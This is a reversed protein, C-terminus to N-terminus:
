KLLFPFAFPDKPPCCVLREEGRGSKPNLPFLACLCISLRIDAKSKWGIPSALLQLGLTPLCLSEGPWPYLCTVPPWLCQPFGIGPHHRASWGKGRNWRWSALGAGMPLSPLLSLTPPCVLWLLGRPFVWPLSTSGGGSDRTTDSSPYSIYSITESPNSHKPCPALFKEPM